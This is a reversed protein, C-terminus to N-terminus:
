NELLKEIKKLGEENLPKSIFGMILPDFSAREADDPNVSSSLIVIQTQTIFTPYKKDLEELFDWGNMYPMNLDLFILEPIKRENEPLSLQKEFYLLADDANEYTLLEKCFHSKKLRLSCILLTVDDDDILMVTDLM